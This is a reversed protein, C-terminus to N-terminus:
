RLTITRGDYEIVNGNAVYELNLYCLKNETDLLETAVSTVGLNIINKTKKALANRRMTMYKNVKSVDAGQNKLKSATVFIEPYSMAKSFAEKIESDIM